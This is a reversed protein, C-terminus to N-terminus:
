LPRCVKVVLNDYTDGADVKYFAGLRAEEDEIRASDERSEIRGVVFRVDLGISERLGAQEAANSPFWTSRLLARRKAHHEGHAASFVGVATM